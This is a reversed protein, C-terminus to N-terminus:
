YNLYLNTFSIHISVHNRTSQSHDMMISAQSQSPITFDAFDFGTGQTNAGLLDNTDDEYFALQSNPGFAEISM